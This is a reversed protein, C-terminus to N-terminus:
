VGILGFAENENDLISDVPSTGLIALYVKQVYQRIQTLSVTPDSMAVNGSIVESEKQCASFTLALAVIIYLSGRVFM